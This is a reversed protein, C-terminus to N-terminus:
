AREEVHATWARELDRERVGIASKFHTMSAKGEWASRLFDFFADRHAGDQGDLLFHVLTYAQAYKLDVNSSGTFDSSGFALVRSLSHPDDAQAHRRFHHALVGRGPVISLRGPAGVIGAAAYEALGESLWPPVEAVGARRGEGTAWLFQHVGEHVLQAPDYGGSANVILAEEPRSFYSRRNGATEPFSAEDAHIRASLPRVVDLLGLEPALFAYVDRYTRELDLTARVADRLALNTRVAYHTTALEWADGWDRRLEALDAFRRRRNGDQVYWTEGRLRHGLLEHAEANTPDLALVGWALLEAEGSLGRARAFRALELRGALNGEPVRDLREHLEGLTRVVSDVSQVDARDIERERSAELLIVREADEYVVHGELERGDALVVRDVPRGDAVTSVAALVLLLATPAV